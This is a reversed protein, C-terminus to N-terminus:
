KLKALLAGTEKIGWRPNAEAAQGNNLKQKAQEM